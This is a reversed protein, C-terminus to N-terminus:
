GENSCRYLAAEILHKVGAGCLLACGRRLSPSATVPLMNFDYGQRDTVDSHQSKHEVDSLKGGLISAVPSHTIRRVYELLDDNRKLHCRGKRSGLLYLACYSWFNNCFSCFIEPYGISM